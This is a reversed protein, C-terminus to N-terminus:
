WAAVAAAAAFVGGASGVLFRVDQNELLVRVTETDEVGLVCDGGAAAIGWAADPEASRCASGASFTSSGASTTIPLCIRLRSLSQRFASSSAARRHFLSARGCSSVCIASRSRSHAPSFARMSASACLPAACRLVSSSSSRTSTSRCSSSFRLIYKGVLTNASPCPPTYRPRSSTHTSCTDPCVASSSSGSLCAGCISITREPVLPWEASPKLSRRLASPKRRAPSLPMPTGLIEKSLRFIVTATATRTLRLKSTRLWFHVHGGLLKRM